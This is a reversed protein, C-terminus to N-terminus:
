SLIKDVDIGEEKEVEKIPAQRFKVTFLLYDKGGGKPKQRGIMEILVESGVPVKRLKDHLVTTDWIALLGNDQTNIIYMTATNEGINERKEEYIGQIKTGVFITAEAQKENKPKENWRILKGNEGSVEEWKEKKVINPNIPQENAVTTKLM